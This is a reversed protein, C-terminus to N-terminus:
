KNEENTGIHGLTQGLTQGLAESVNKIRTQLSEIQLLSSRVKDLQNKLIENEEMAKALVATSCAVLQMRHLEKLEEIKKAETFLKELCSFIDGNAGKSLIFEAIYKYRGENTSLDYTGKETSIINV